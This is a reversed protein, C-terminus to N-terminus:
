RDRRDIGAEIPEPRINHPMPWNREWMYIV